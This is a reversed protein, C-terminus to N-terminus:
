YYVTCLTTVSIIFKEIAHIGIQVMLSSRPFLKRGFMWWDCVVVSICLLTVCGTSYSISVDHDVDLAVM